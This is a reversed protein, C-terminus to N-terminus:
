LLRGTDSYDSAFLALFRGFGIQWTPVGEPDDFREM